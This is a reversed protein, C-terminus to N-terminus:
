IKSMITDGTVGVSQLLRWVELGRELMPDEGCVVTGKPTLTRIHLPDTTGWDMEEGNLFKAFLDHFSNKVLTKEKKLLTEGNGWMWTPYDAGHTVGWEKPFTKDVCKARWEMRYRYILEGAGHQVLANVFGRELMHIQIDAYIRGFADPWDKCDAPLKDGPYYYKVLTECARIPYDAQLRNFLSELSNKPPRWLGYIFHEDKCEGILLKIGRRKMREAFIGNDIEKMLGHRVFHGDTTARFQHHKVRMSAKILTPADLARLRALKETPSVGLPIKLATLLEEFQEQAESTSKPQVGPGNSWMIARRAIAKSDPLGLEYALQHFTAHSGASYGGITINSADGGFYSINKHTWELALRIDWFGVNSVIDSSDFNQGLEESALFGFVNLRYAPMVCIFKASTESLIASLDGSNPNGFQLFGGHINFFVPWGGAPPEGVPMWINCQLCDEDWLTMDPLDSDFGPQPCLATGGTYRGPNARTGYRYCSPLPRPKRWRFPGVPPLAYPVGGFYHCTPQANSKFTLGEIFGRFELDRVYPESTKAM